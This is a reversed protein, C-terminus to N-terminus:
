SMTARICISAVTASLGLSCYTVKVQGIIQVAEESATKFYLPFVGLAASTHYVKISCLM